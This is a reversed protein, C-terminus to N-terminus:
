REWPAYLRSGAEWKKDANDRIWALLLASKGISQTRSYFCYFKIWVMCIYKNELIRSPLKDMLRTVGLALLGAFMLVYQRMPRVNKGSIM